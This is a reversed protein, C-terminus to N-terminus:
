GIVLRLKPRLNGSKILFDKWRAVQDQRRQESDEKAQPSGTPLIVGSAIMTDRLHQHYKLEMPTLAGFLHAM